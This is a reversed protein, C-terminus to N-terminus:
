EAGLIGEALIPSTGLSALPPTVEQQAKEGTPELAPLCGTLVELRATASWLATTVVVDLVEADDLGAARLEDIREPTITYSRTNVDNAFRAILGAVRRQGFGISLRHHM